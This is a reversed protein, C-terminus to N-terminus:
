IKIGAKNAKIFAFLREALPEATKSYSEDYQSLKALRQEDDSAMVTEIADMALDSTGLAKIAKQTINATKKCGIRQLSNVITQAFERSSNTFFQQYGGNNVERELAEVALVIHEENTIGQMGDREAKQSIAQEFVSVLSDIRYKGELALLQDVSQGSYGDLWALGSRLKITAAIREKLQVM